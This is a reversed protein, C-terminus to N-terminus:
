QTTVIPQTRLPHHGQRNRALPLSVRTREVSGARGSEKKAALREMASASGHPLIRNPLRRRCDLHPPILSPLVVKPIRHETYCM